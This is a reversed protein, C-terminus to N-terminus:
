DFPDSESWRIVRQAEVVFLGFVNSRKRQFVIANRNFAPTLANPNTSENILVNALWAWGGQKNWVPNALVGVSILESYGLIGVCRVGPRLVFDLPNENRDYVGGAPFFPPNPAAGAYNRPFTPGFGTTQQMQLATRNTSSAIMASGLPTVIFDTTAVSTPLLHVPRRTGTALAHSDGLRSGGDSGIPGIANDDIPITDALYGWLGGNAIDVILAEGYTPNDGSQNIILLYGILNGPPNINLGLGGASGSTTDNLLPETSLFGSVDYTLVDNTSTHGFTSYAQCADTAAATANKFHYQYHLFDVPDGPDGNFFPNMHTVITTVNPANVVFFPYLLVHEAWAGIVGVVGTMMLSALALSVLRTWGSSRFKTM